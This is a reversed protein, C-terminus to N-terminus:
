GNLLAMEMALPWGFFFVLEIWLSWPRAHGARRAALSLIRAVFGGPVWLIAHVLVIAAGINTDGAEVNLSFRGGTAALFTGLVLAAAIAARWALGYWGSATVPLAFLAVRILWDTM